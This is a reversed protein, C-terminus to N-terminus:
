RKNNPFFVVQSDSDHKIVHNEADGKSDFIQAESINGTKDNNSDKVYSAEINGNQISFDAVFYPAM